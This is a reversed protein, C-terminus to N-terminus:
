GPRLRRHVTRRVHVARRTAHAARGPRLDPRPDAEFAAIASDDARVPRDVLGPQSTRDRGPRQNGDTRLPRPALLAASPRTPTVDPTNRWRLGVARPLRGPRGRRTVAAAQPTSRPWPDDPRQPHCRAARRRRDHHRAEAGRGHRRAPSSGGDGTTGCPGPSRAGPLLRILGDGARHDRARGDARRAPVHGYIAGPPGPGASVTASPSRDGSAAPTPASRRDRRHAPPRVRRVDRGLGVRRPWVPSRAMADIGRRHLEPRSPEPRFPELEVAAPLSDRVTSSPLRAIIRQEVYPDGAATRLQSGDIYSPSNLRLLQGGRVPQRDSPGIM